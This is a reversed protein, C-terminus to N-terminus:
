KKPTTLAALAGYVATLAPTDIGLERGWKVICGAISEMEMPREAERDQLMSTKHSKTGVQNEPYAAIVAKERLNIGKAKAVRTFESIINRVTQSLISNDYIEGVTSFTLASLPNYATNWLLKEWKTQMINRSIRCTVGSQTLLEAVKEVRQSRVGDLEGISLHADGVVNIVGPSLAKSAVFVSAGMVRQDGVIDAIEGENNVGNQLALIVTHPALLGSLSRAAEETATSKVCFLILDFPDVEDTISCAKVAISWCKGNEKVTLGDQQLRHLTENRSIFVVDLGSRALKGGFFGGVAGTGVVAIRM